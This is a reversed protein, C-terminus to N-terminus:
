AVMVAVESERQLFIENLLSPIKDFDQVKDIVFDFGQHLYLQRLLPGINSKCLVIKAKPNLSKVKEIVQDPSFKVSSMKYCVNVFVLNADQKSIKEEMSDQSYVPGLNEVFTLTNLMDLIKVTNSPAFDYVIAKLRSVTQLMPTM